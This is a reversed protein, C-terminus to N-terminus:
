QKAQRFGEGIFDIEKAPLEDPGTIAFAEVRPGSVEPGLFATGPLRELLEVANPLMQVRVEHGLKGVLM